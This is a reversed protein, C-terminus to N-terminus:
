ASPGIAIPSAKLAVCYYWTGSPYFQRMEINVEGDLLIAQGVRMQSRLRERAAQHDKGVAMFYFYKDANPLFKFGAWKVQMKTKTFLEPPATHGDTEEAHSQSLALCIAFALPLLLSKM